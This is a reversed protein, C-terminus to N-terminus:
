QEILRERLFELLETHKESDRIMASILIKFLGHYYDDSAKLLNKYEKIGERELKIFDDTAAICRQQAAASDREGELSNPPKTWNLSGKLTAAMAHIVARHKEEDSVIMQLLFRSMADPMEGMIKRYYELSKEEKAEHVEFESLLREVPSVGEATMTLESMTNCDFLENM